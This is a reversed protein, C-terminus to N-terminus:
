ISVVTMQQEFPNIKEVCAEIWKPGFVLYYPMFNQIREQFVGKPFINARLGHFMEIEQVYKKKHSRKMKEVLSDMLHQMKKFRAASAGVLSPDIQQAKHALVDFLQRSLDQAEGLDFLPQNQDLIFRKTWQDQSLFLADLTNIKLKQMQRQTKKDLWLVSNRLMLIPFPVGFVDFNQKLQLWYALEGGGGVVALNPLVMEQYLPRLLVNPSFREPFCDIEQMLEAPTFTFDNNPTTFLDNKKIIRERFQNKLYFFNIERPSVQLHYGNKTLFDNTLSLNHHTTQEFIEQKIVTKLENKLAKCNSDLIILGYEKFLANIFFRTALSLNEHKLYANKLMKKLMSANTSSGLAGCVAEVFGDIDGLHFAGVAGKQDTHWEIKTGDLDIHNIELFDHDESALWFVPVFHHDPYAKKLERSVKITNSIKYITYLHGAALNLQHGTCISFTTPQLLLDINKQTEPSTEFGKYQNILTQHLLIRKSPNFFPEKEKIQRGFGAISPQNHYLDKLNDKSDLYDLVLKSFLSTNKYELHQINM